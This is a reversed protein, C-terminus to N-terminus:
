WQRWGPPPRGCGEPRLRPGPPPQRGPASAPSAPCQGMFQAGQSPRPAKTISLHDRQPRRLTPGAVHTGARDRAPARHPVAYGAPPRPGGDNTPPGKQVLAPECRRPPNGARDRAPIWAKELSLGSAFLRPPPGGGGRKKPGARQWESTQPNHRMTGTTPSNRVGDVHGSKPRKKPYPQVSWLSGRPPFSAGFTVSSPAVPNGLPASSFKRQPSLRSGGEKRCPFTPYLIAGEDAGTHASPCRGGLPFAKPLHSRLM